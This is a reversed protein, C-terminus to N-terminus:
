RRWLSPDFLVLITFFELRGLLMAFALLAKATDPLTSFNGAPGITQGLGPGVNTLATAAGTISTTFDLGLATLAMAIVMFSTFLISVFALVAVPVDDGIPRGDYIARHVRHPSILSALYGRATLWMIQIRFIKIGGTTSGTCGGIFTLVFFAGLAPAGWSSYDGYAFGTTSIVSVINFSVETLVAFFSLEHSAYRWASMGIIFLAVIGFFGQVQVDRWIAWSGGRLIRIYLVIPLSGLFMFVTAVWMTSPNTYFGFSADHTSFGGTAVTSMAHCVADFLTMGSIAYSVMCALTLLGYSAAIYRVLQSARPVIKDSRDSSETHFLQMGGIRLFPLIIIAMVVIGIGGLWNLISRWLLLGPPMNDLGVLVTSGTTTLGSVSEFWADVLSLNQGVLMFPVAGFISVAGWTAATVLFGERRSIGSNAQRDSVLTLMTGFFCTILASLAFVQWDSHGAALDTAVSPLMFIGLGILIIGVVFMIRRPDLVNARRETLAARVAARNGPM